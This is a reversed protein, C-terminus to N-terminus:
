ALHETNTTLYYALPGYASLMRSSSHWCWPTSTAGCRVQTSSASRRTSAMRAVRALHYSLRIDKANPRGRVYELVLEMAKRGFGMGQYREDMMFRWINYEPKKPDDYVMVFGVPTDGACIARFWAVDRDFYAEAISIANPAVFQRQYESVNLKCVQRVTDRTVEQLTVASTKDVM